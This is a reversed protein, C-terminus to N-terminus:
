KSETTCKRDDLNEFMKKIQASKRTIAAEYEVTDLKGRRVRWGTGLDNEEADGAEKM